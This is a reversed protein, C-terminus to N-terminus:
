ILYRRFAIKHMCFQIAKVFAYAPVTCGDTSLRQIKLAKHVAVLQLTALAPRHQMTLDACKTGNVIRTECTGLIILEVM